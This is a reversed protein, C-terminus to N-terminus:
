ARDRHEDGSVLAGGLHQPRPVPIWKQLPTTDTGDGVHLPARKLGPADVFRQAADKETIPAELNIRSM